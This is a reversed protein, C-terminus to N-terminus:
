YYLKLKVQGANCRSALEAVLSESLKGLARYFPSQAENALLELCRPLWPSLHAELLQRLASLAQTNEPNQFLRELFVALASFVLGIHDLPERAQLQFALRQEALFAELCHTSAGLLLNEEDLYVSGWPPVKPMPLGVFLLMYENRLEASLSDLDSRDLAEAFEAFAAESQPSHPFPWANRLDLSALELLLPQEPWARYLSSLLKAFFAASECDPATLKMKNYTLPAGKEPRLITHM